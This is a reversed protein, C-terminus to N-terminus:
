TSWISHKLIGSATLANTPLPDCDSQFYATLSLKWVCFQAPSVSPLLQLLYLFPLLSAQATHSDQSERGISEERPVTM